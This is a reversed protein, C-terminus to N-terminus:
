TAETRQVPHVARAIELPGSLGLRFAYGEPVIHIRMFECPRGTDTRSTREMILIHGRPDVALERAIRASTRACRIVVDAASIRLGLFQQLIDYVTLDRARREGVAAAEALLFAEVVAFPRGNLEYRRLLRVPLDLGEPLSRDIRGASESFELLHTQPELGQSRLADHFGQLRGLDQELTPRAVFTGKGRRAVVQGARALLQLAERVTVRSVRYAEMLQAESPVQMGPALRGSSIDDALRGAIQVYLPEACLPDLPRLDAPLQARSM